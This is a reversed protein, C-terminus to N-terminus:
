CLQPKFFFDGWADPSKGFEEESWKVIRYGCHGGADTRDLIM